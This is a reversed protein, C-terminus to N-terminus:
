YASYKVGKDDTDTNNTIIQGSKTDYAWGGATTATIPAGTSTVAVASSNLIPDTPIGKRIYPGYKYNVPDGVTCADGAADTPMLLQDQIAQVSLAAGTGVTGSNGAVCTGTGSSAVAGPYVGGHQAQYLAIASRLSSLDAALASNQADKTSSTFQPIVIAALIALIIVVILLEILTFGLRKIRSMPAQM